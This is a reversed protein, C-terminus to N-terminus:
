ECWEKNEYDVDVDELNACFFLSEHEVCIVYGCARTPSNQEILELSLWRWGEPRSQIEFMFFEIKRGLVLKLECFTWYSVNKMTTMAKTPHLLDM